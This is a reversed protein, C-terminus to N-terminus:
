RPRRGGLFLCVDASERYVRSLSNVEREAGDWGAQRAEDLMKTLRDVHEAEWADPYTDLLWARARERNTM